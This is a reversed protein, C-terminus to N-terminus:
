LLTESDQLRNQDKLHERRLQNISQSHSHKTCKQDKLREPRTQKAATHWLQSHQLPIDQLRLTHNRDKLRESQKQNTM